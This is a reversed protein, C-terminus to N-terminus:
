WGYKGENPDKDIGFDNKTPDWIEVGRQAYAEPIEPPPRKYRGKREWLKKLYWRFPQRHLSQTLRM